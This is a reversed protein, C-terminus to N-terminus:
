NRKGYGDKLVFVLQKYEVRLHTDANFLVPDLQMLQWQLTTVIIYSLETRVMYRHEFKVVITIRMRVIIIIPVTAPVYNNPYSIM